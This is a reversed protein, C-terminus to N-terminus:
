KSSKYSRTLSYSGTLNILSTDKSALGWNNGLASSYSSSFYPLPRGWLYRNSVATASVATVPAVTSMPVKVPSIASIALM